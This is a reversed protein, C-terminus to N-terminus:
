KKTSNFIDSYVYIDMSNFLIKFGARKKGKNHM